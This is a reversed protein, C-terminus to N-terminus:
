AYDGNVELVAVALLLGNKSSTKVKSSMTFGM